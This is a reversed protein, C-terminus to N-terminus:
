MPLILLVTASNNTDHPRVQFLYFNLLDMLYHKGKEQDILSEINKIRGTGNIKELRKSMKAAFKIKKEFKKRAIEAPTQILPGTLAEYLGVTALAFRDYFHALLSWFDKPRADESRKSANWKTVENYQL